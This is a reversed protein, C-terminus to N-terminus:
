IDKHTMGDSLFAFLGFIPIVVSMILCIPLKKPIKRIQYRKKTTPLYLYNALLM